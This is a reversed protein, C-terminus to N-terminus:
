AVIDPQHRRLVDPGVDLPVLVIGRVGFRDALGQGARRHAKHRHLVEFLLRSQQQVPGAVEQDGLARLEDIRQPSMQAFETHNGRLAEAAHALKDRQRM